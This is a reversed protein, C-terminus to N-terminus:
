FGYKLALAAYFSPTFHPDYERSMSKFFAKLTRDDYYAARDACIGVTLPISFSKGLKLEPQLGVIIYQQTFIQDKGDREVLALMGNMSFALKLQFFPNLRIGGSIEAGDMMSVTLMYRGELRWDVFFAPFVMPYGFTTNLAIGAGIDLNDRLHWIAGAMGMGLVNKFRVYALSPTDTFIGAGASFLLSWRKSVPRMYSVSLQMNFIESLGIYGSLKKNDMSAYSAGMGVMWATPHNNEDMKMSVPINLGGQIVKMDGRGGVKKNDADRFGSYGLYETKLWIQANVDRLIFLGCLLVLVISATKM